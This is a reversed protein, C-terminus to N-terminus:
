LFMISQPQSGTSIDLEADLIKFSEMTRYVMRMKQIVVINRSGTKSLSENPIFNLKIDRATQATDRQFFIIEL